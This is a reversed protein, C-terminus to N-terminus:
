LSSIPKAAEKASVSSKRLILNEPIWSITGEVLAGRVLAYYVGTFGYLAGYSNGGTLEVVRTAAGDQVIVNDGSKFM